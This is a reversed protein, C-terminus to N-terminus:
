VRRNIITIVCEKQLEKLWSPDMTRSELELLQRYSLMGGKGDIQSDSLADYLQRAIENSIESSQSSPVNKVETKKESNITGTMSSTPKTPKNVTKTTTKAAISPSSSHGNDLKIKKNSNSVLIEDDIAAIDEDAIEWDLDEELLDVSTSKSTSATKLDSLKGESKANLTTSKTSELTSPISRRPSSRPSPSTSLRRKSSANPSATAVKAAEAPKFAFRAALSSIAPSSPSPPM